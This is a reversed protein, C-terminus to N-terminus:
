PQPCRAAFAGEQAHGDADAVRVFRHQEVQLLGRFQAHAGVAQADAGGTRPLGLQQAGEDEGQHGRVRGLVERQYEDVVLATRGEGRERLQGMDGPDDGVQLVLRAEDLADVGGEGTLHLAALLGELVRAVDRVDTVVGRQAGLPPGIEVRKRVQEDDDVLEAFEEGGLGVEDVEEQGDAADAAGDSHMQQQGALADLAAPELAQVGIQRVPETQTGEGRVLRARDEVGRVREVQRRQGAEAVELDVGTM